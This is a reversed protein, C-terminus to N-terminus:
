WAVLGSVSINIEGNDSKEITYDIPKNAKEEIAAKVQQQDADDFNNRLAVDFNLNAACSAKKNDAALPRTERNPTEGCRRSKINRTRLSRVGLFQSSNEGGPLEEGELLGTLLVEEGEIPDHCGMRATWRVM